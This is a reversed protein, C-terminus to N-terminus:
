DEYFISVLGVYIKVDPTNLIQRPMSL